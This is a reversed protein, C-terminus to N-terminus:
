LLDRRIGLLPTCLFTTLLSNREICIGTKPANVWHFAQICCFKGVVSCTRGLWIRVEAHYILKVVSVVAVPQESSSFHKHHGKESLKMSLTLDSRHRKASSSGVSKCYAV